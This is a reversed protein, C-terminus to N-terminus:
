DSSQKAFRSKMNSPPQSVNVSLPSEFSGDRGLRSRQEYIQSDFDKIYSEVKTKATLSSQLSTGSPKKISAIKDTIESARHEISEVTQVTFGGEEVAQM